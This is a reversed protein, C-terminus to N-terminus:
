EDRRLAVVRDIGALDKHFGARFGHMEALSAVEAAQTAGVEVFAAGYPALLADLNALIVRYASLGDDGGDLAIDPDFRRVELPLEAIEAHRIYPPNSVVLDFRGRLPANWDGVVFRARNDLGLRIANGRAARAAGEAIDVGIGTAQPLESLLALLIAGSGTGLDLVALAEDARGSQRARALAAEVVTETDPRPVLTEPALALDFSWFGKTGIIRAVPEGAARREALAMAVAVDEPSVARDAHVVLGTADLGLVHGVLLRADLDPTAHANRTRGLLLRM